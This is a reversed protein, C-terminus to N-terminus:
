QISRLKTRKNVINNITAVNIINDNSTMLIHGNFRLLQYTHCIQLTFEIYISHLKAM